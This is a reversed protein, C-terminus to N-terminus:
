IKDVLSYTPALMSIAFIGVAIGIIVMLVPEIITSMDKTKQDVEDEYYAAVGLLMDAMKGTEEGVNMMEGVFIPYLNEHEIFVASIPDGKQINEHAKGL